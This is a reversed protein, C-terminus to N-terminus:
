QSIEIEYLYGNQKTKIKFPGKKSLRVIDWILGDEVFINKTILPGDNPPPLQSKGLGCNIIIKKKKEVFQYELPIIFTNDTVISVSNERKSYSELFDFERVNKIILANRNIYKNLADLSDVGNVKYVTIRGSFPTLKEPNKFWLTNEPYKKCTTFFLVIILTSVFVNIYKNKLIM